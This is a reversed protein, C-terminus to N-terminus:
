IGIQFKSSQFGFYTEIRIKRFEDKKDNTHPLDNLSYHYTEIRIKRSEDKKYAWISSIVFPCLTSTEIRIKRSEDKKHM